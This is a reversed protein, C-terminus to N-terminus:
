ILLVEMSESICACLLVPIGNFKQQRIVGSRSFPVLQWELHCSTVAHHHPVPPEIGKTTTFSQCIALSLFVAASDIITIKRSSCVVLTTSYLNTFPTSCKHMQVLSFIVWALIYKCFIRYYQWSPFQPSSSFQEWGLSSSLNIIM